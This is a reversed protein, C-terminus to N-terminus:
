AFMPHEVYRISAMRPKIIDEIYSPNLEIGISNRGLKEAVYLTTGAGAFPDLVTCPIPGGADCSCTPQWGVTWIQRMGALIRAKVASADQVGAGTYNKRAKGKYGGSADAGCRAQWERDPEGEETIRVWPAGCKPCCGAASTGAKICIEVLDPPYTAFHAGPFPHTPIVWVSHKNRGPPVRDNRTPRHSPYSQGPVELATVKGRERRFTGARGPWEQGPERIAYSDYFYRESRALLFVYEHSRTPRDTVSEPMPNPKSNHTLVGSALSFVHPEDEVGIDWFQRARSRRIAVVEGDPRNNHHDPVEFRIQGHYGPFEQGGLKHKTRKLRLSYGLRACLTRLDAAWNDNATFAIRYRNNERDYHGDGSLYGRLVAALFANSRQWCRPHLHKDHATRGAVYADIIGNLVPGNLNITAQNGGTHHMRCTGHYAEAVRQLREFRETERAHSSIQITDGSRSGEAIYLGVFWGVLDGDLGAPQRANEPEPLRCTQIVDGIRLEDARVNGRQTPWLHGATCGIREGSRLEIEYTVDPRPTQSWGLVQTWKHGNWLKVTSPDLRVLDKITMPMEGKQTKAYVRTGGSLCWIIDSRLYWGDAQLAFAVRWPIGVLDKPKLGPVVGRNAQQAYLAAGTGKQTRGEDWPGGKGPHAYCDGLNLWLTGDRRLVRKVERFVEVIHQVYEEPTAESGLEYSKLPDDAKLYSRLGWYPPSTVCCHVSESELTQLVDLANGHLVQWM